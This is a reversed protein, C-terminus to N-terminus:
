WFSYDEDDGDIERPRYKGLCSNSCFVKDEYRYVPKGADWRNCEDCRYKEPGDKGETWWPM